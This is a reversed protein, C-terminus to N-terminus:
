AARRANQMRRRALFPAGLLCLLGMAFALLAWPMHPPTYGFTVRHNGPGVTVAQFVGDYERVASARGNIAASWGPMYTERRVLTTATPCSVLASQGSQSQVACSPNTATFYSSAGALRYIVTTPSRFVVTFMRPGLPLKLGPPGLVYRVGAARYGNLNSLLEQQPTPAATPRGPLGGAFLLPNVAQDLHATVYTAFDSPALADNYNLSRLGYYAGYNPVLPGLTFVRSLGQNRQLYAVPATDITTRRPASLEPLVFLVFADLCVISAALIRRARANRLVAALAGAGVVAVAWIASGRSYVRHDPSALKHALPVACITAAAVVALSVGTVAALGWGRASRATLSDMGLAALVIVALALAPDAFRYFQVHTMGPLVGLVAGLAQPERYIRAVALTIFVFLVVRLGRRGPSILGLLGFLLLSTSLYGGVNGWIFNLTGTPDTFGYIPGYVYPLLLQPLAAHPLYVNAYVVGAHSNYGHSLYDVFVVLVPAALLAAVVGGLAVKGAFARLHQRRACGCRWAFWLAALLGDIYATEPFGAYVSLAGAVAILWWGGSRRAASASFAHEIGLLLLPLFAIENVPAHAFWAFTGNLAYAIAAATSAWRSIELRRLLLYTAVGTLLELLIHEYLQGNGALTFITFPFLAASQLEGALPSGTGQFANWWPPQLHLWDIMARHGLAQSVAGSYPDATPVGALLGPKTVLGLGSQGIPNPDFVGSVYLLNALLVVAAIALV